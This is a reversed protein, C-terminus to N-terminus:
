DHTKFDSLKLEFRPGNYILQIGENGEESEAEQGSYPSCSGGCSGVVM